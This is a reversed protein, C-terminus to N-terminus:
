GLLPAPVLVAMLGRHLRERSMGQPPLHVFGVPITGGLELGVQYLWANCVYTGADESVEADMARALAGVDLSAEVRDPGPPRAPDLAWSLGDVDPRTGPGPRRGYREVSVEPRETAVGIGLVLCAGLERARDAARRAGGAYSVPMEEGIVAIGGPLVSGDIARALRASPNDRVSLFPGFGLVLVVGPPGAPSM